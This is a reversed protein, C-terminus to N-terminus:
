RIIMIINRKQTINNLVKQFNKHRPFKAHSLKPTLNQDRAKPPKSKQGWEIMGTVKFESYEGGTHSYVINNTSLSFLSSM